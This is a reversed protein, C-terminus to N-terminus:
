SYLRSDGGIGRPVIKDMGIAMKHGDDSLSRRRTLLREQEASGLVMVAEPTVGDIV